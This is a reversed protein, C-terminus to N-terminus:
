NSKLLTPDNAISFVALVAGVLLGIYFSVCCTNCWARICYLWFGYFSAYLLVVARTATLWHFLKGSGQPWLEPACNRMINFFLQHNVESGNGVNCGRHVDWGICDVM